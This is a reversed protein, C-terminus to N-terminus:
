AQKYHQGYIVELQQRLERNEAELKQIRQRLTAIMADKSADSARVKPPPTSRPASQARLQQIRAAIAPHQYLWATSVGSAEAVTRFNVPRKARVLQQIGAEARRVADVHRQKASQRLGETNRQHTM